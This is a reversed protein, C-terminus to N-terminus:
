IHIAVKVQLWIGEVENEESLRENILVNVIKLSGILEWIGGIEM